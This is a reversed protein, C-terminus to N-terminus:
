SNGYKKNEKAILEQLRHHWTDIEEHQEHTHPPDPIEPVFEIVHDFDEPIDEFREFNQLEGDIMLVFKHTM